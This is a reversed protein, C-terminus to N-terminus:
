ISSSRACAGGVGFAAGGLVGDVSAGVLVGVVLAGVVLAGVVLAGDALAGDGAGTSTADGGGGGCFFRRAHIAGTTM